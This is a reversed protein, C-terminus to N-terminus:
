KKCIEALKRKLKQINPESICRVQNIQKPKGEGIYCDYSWVNNFQANKSKSVRTMFHEILGLNEDAFQACIVYDFSYNNFTDGFCERMRVVKKEIADRITTESLRTKAEIILIRDDLRVIFDAELQREPSVKFLVNSLYEVGIEDLCNAVIDEFYKHLLYYSYPPKLVQIKTVRGPKRSEVSNYHQLKDTSGTYWHLLNYEQDIKEPTYIGLNTGRAKANTCIQLNDVHEIKDYFYVLEFYKKYLQSISLDEPLYFNFKLYTLLKNLAPKMASKRFTQVDEPMSKQVLRAGFVHKILQWVYNGREQVNIIETIDILPLLRNDIIFGVTVTEDIVEYLKWEVSTIDLVKELFVPNFIMVDPDAEVITYRSLDVDTVCIPYALVDELEDCEILKKKVSKNALDVIRSYLVKYQPRIFEKLFDELNVNAKINEEIENSVITSTIPRTGDVIYSGIFRNAESKNVYIVHDRSKVSINDLIKDEIKSLVVSIFTEFTDKETLQVSLNKMLNELTFIQDIKHIDMDIGDLIITDFLMHLINDFYSLDIRFRSTSYGVNNLLKM